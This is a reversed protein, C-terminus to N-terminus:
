RAPVFEALIEGLHARWSGWGHSDIREGGAVEHGAARLLGALHASQRALDLDRSNRLEYRNWNVVFRARSAAPHTVLALLAPEIEESAGFSELAALGFRDPRALAAWAAAVAGRWKGMVARQEPGARLRYDHELRPLLEDALMAVYDVTRRGGVEAWGADPHAHVFAAVLPAVGSAILNDLSNAMHGAALWQQGENVVLLPYREASADYGHPLYVTVEREGGLIASALNVTEVRGAASGDHPALHAPEVRGPMVLESQEGYWESPVRRPNLPDPGVDDFDVNFRYEWRAEPELTFSRWFLDTGAVRTLPLERDYPAMSGAIAVDAADGRWVFHVRRDGEVLPFRPQSGIFRDVLLRRDPASEVRRVWEEFRSAPPPLAGAAPAPGASTVVLAAIEEVNRFFIRGDAFSPYSVTDYRAANVRARERYGEPSAAVVVVDGDAAFVVLQDGVLILGTGGPPRSKWVSRGTTADVCSLFRGDFGYLHGRHHVPTSLRAKLTEARWLERSTWREAARVVELAVTAPAATVVFRGAGLPVVQATGGDQDDAGVEHRWLIAGSAPDFGTLLKNSLALVQPVGAIEAFIPSQYAARDDGGSSWRVEGTAEDFATVLRGASGGTLVFLRGDGVLPTAVFGFRPARAGLREVLDVSWVPVGDALRLALLRGRPALAYVRDGSIVPTAAPGDDSGDHGAYTPGIRHRWHEEGTAPDLAIVWDDRHDSFMTLARGSSVVIGSYGSGLPRSWSVALGFEGAFVGDGPASGDLAPGRWTPWDATLAPAAVALALALTKPYPHPM